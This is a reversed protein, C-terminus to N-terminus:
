LVLDPQACVADAARHAGARGDALAAAMDSGQVALHAQTQAGQGVIGLLWIHNRCLVALQARIQAEQRVHGKQPLHSNDAKTLLPAYASKNFLVKVLSVDAVCM